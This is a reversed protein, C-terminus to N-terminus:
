DVWNLELATRHGVVAQSLKTVPATRDNGLPISRAMIEAAVQPYLPVRNPEAYGHPYLPRGFSDFKDKAGMLHLIEHAVNVLAFEVNEKDLPIFVVGEHQSRYGYYELPYRARRDPQPSYFHLYIAFEEAKRIQNQIPSKLITQNFFNLVRKRDYWPGFNPPDQKLEVPGIIKVEPKFDSRKTLRRYEQRLFPGIAHLTPNRAIEEEDNNATAEAFVYLRIKPSAIMAQPSRPENRDKLLWNVFFGAAILVFMLPLSRTLSRLIEHLCDVVRSWRTPKLATDVAVERPRPPPPSKIEPEVLAVPESPQSEHEEEKSEGAASAIIAERVPSVTKKTVLAVRGIAPKNPKFVTRERAMDKPIAMTSDHEVQSIDNNIRIEDPEPPLNAALRIAEDLAL